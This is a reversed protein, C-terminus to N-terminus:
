TKRQIRNRRDKDYNSILKRKKPALFRCAPPTVKSDSCNLGDVSRFVPITPTDPPFNLYNESDNIECDHSDINPTKWLAEIGELDRWYGDQNEYLPIEKSDYDYFIKRINVELVSTDFIFERTYNTVCDLTYQYGKILAKEFRFSQIFDLMVVPPSLHNSIVWRDNTLVQENIVITEKRHTKYAIIRKELSKGSKLIVVVPSM